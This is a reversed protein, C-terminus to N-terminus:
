TYGFFTGARVEEHLHASNAVPSAPAGGEV